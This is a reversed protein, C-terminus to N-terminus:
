FVNKTIKRGESHITVASSLPSPLVYFHVRHWIKDANHTHIMRFSNVINMM